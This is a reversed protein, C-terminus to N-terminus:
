FGGMGQYGFDLDPHSIHYIVYITLIVILVFAGIFLGYALWNTPYVAPTKGDTSAPTTPKYFLEPKFFFVAGAIGLGLIVIILMIVIILFTSM